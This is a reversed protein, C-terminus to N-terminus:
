LQSISENTNSVSKFYFFFVPFCEGCLKRRIQNRLVCIHTCNYKSSIIYLILTNETSFGSRLEDCIKFLLCALFFVFFRFFYIRNLLYKEQIGAPKWLPRGAYQKNRLQDYCSPTGQPRCFLSLFLTIFFLSIILSRLSQRSSSASSPSSRRSILSIDFPVIHFSIILIIDDMYTVGKPCKSINM